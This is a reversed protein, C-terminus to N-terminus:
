EKRILIIMHNTCQDSLITHTYSYHPHFNLHVVDDRTKSPFQPPRMEVHTMNDVRVEGGSVVFYRRSGM